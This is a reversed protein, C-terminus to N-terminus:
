KLLDLATQQIRALMDDDYMPLNLMRDFMYGDMALCVLASRIPDPSDSAVEDMWQHFKEHFPALLQPNIGAAALLGGGVPDYAPGNLDFACRVLARAHRYPGPAETDYHSQKLAECSDIMRSVMARILDDKSKFHYLVGGKSLNAMKAAADLTLKSVGQERVIAIAADLITDRANPPM